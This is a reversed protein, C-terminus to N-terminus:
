PRNMQWILHLGDLTLNPALIEIAPTHQAFIPALGGTAIVKVAQGPLEAKIRAVLGEIMALYGLFLGSQMAQVTSRGIAAPPPALDVKRLQATNRVLADHALGIGPTIAGGLYDGRPM